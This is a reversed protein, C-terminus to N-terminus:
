MRKKPKRAPNDPSAVVNKVNKSRLNKVPKGLAEIGAAIKKPNIESINPFLFRRLKVNTGM